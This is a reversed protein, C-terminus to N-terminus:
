NDRNWGLPLAVHDTIICVETDSVPISCCGLIYDVNRRIIYTECREANLWGLEATPTGVKVSTDWQLRRTTVPGSVLLFRMRVEVTSGPNIHLKQVTAASLIGHEISDYIGHVPLPNEELEVTAEVHADLHPNYVTFYEGDEHVELRNECAPPPFPGGETLQGYSARHVSLRLDLICEVEVSKSTRNSISAQQSVEGNVDVKLTYQIDAGNGSQFNLVAVNMARLDVAVKEPRAQGGQIRMGFGPSGNNVM